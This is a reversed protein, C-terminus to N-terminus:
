RREKASTGGEGTAGGASDGRHLSFSREEGRLLKSLNSRHAWVVTLGVVVLPLDSALGLGSIAGWIPLSIAACISGLSVYRSPVALCLFILILGCAVPWCLGLAAGFGVSIGKGGHFGLYPSFIHGLVCCAFVLSPCLGFPGQALTSSWDGGFAVMAMALRSLLMCATGKGMDLALTLAAARGGASRAVNTMGINGSGVTRVDVHNLRKAVIMGFPIGCVLFSTIMCAATVLVLPTTPTAM